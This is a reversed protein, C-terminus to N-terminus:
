AGHYSVFLAGQLGMFIHFHLWSRLPGWTRMARVRRRLSYVHMIAMSATGAWGLLYSAHAGGSEEPRYFHLGVLGAAEAVLLLYYPLPLVVEMPPRVAPGGSQEAM